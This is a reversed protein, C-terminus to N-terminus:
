RDREEAGRGREEQVRGRDEREGSREEVPQVSVHLSGSRGAPM